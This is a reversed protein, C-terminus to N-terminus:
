GNTPEKHDPHQCPYGAMTKGDFCPEKSQCYGCEKECEKECENKPDMADADRRLVFAIYELYLAVKRLSKPSM